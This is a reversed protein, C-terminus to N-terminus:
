LPQRTIVLFDLALKNDRATTLPYSLEDCCTNIDVIMVKFCAVYTVAFM